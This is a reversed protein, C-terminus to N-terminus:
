FYIIYTSILPFRAVWSNILKRLAAPTSLPATQAHAFMACAWSALAPLNFARLLVHSM